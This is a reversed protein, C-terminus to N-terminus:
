YLSYGIANIALNAFSHCFWSAYINDYKQNLYNFILGGIFLGFLIILNIGLNFMGDMIAIHYLSFSLSSFIYAIKLSCPKLKYFIFGRFFWEELFSNIIAVYLAVIIFNSKNIGLNQELAGIIQEADFYSKAIAYFIMIAAFISIGLFLAPKLGKLNNTLLKFPKFDSNKQAFLLPTIFFIPVKVMTKLWFHSILLDAAAIACIAIIISILLSKNQSITKIPKEERPKIRAEKTIICYYDSLFM